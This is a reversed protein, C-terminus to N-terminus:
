KSETLEEREEIMEVFEIVAAMMTTNSSRNIIKQEIAWKASKLCTTFTHGEKEMQNKRNNLLFLGRQVCSNFDNTKLNTM